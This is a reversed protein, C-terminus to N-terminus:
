INHFKPNPNTSRKAITGAMFGMVVEYWSKNKGNKPTLELCRHFFLCQFNDLVPGQYEMDEDDISSSYCEDIRFNWGDEGKVLEFSYIKIDEKEDLIGLKEQNLQDYDDKYEM